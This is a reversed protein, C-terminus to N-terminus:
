NFIETQKKVHCIGKDIWEIKVNKELSNAIVRELM